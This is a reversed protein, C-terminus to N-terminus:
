KNDECKVNKTTEKVGFEDSKKSLQSIINKYNEIEIAQQNCIIKYTLIDNELEGLRQKAVNLITDPKIEM